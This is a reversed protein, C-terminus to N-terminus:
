VTKHNLDIILILISQDIVLSFHAQGLACKPVCTLVSWNILKIQIKVCM